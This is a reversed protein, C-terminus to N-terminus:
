ILIPIPFRSATDFVARDLFSFFRPRSASYAQFVLHVSIQLADLSSNFMTLSPPCSTQDKFATPDVYCLITQFIKPKNFDRAAESAKSKKNFGQIRSDQDFM